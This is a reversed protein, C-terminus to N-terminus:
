MAPTVRTIIADLTGNTPPWMEERSNEPGSDILDLAEDICEIIPWHNKRRMSLQRAEILTKHLKTRRKM